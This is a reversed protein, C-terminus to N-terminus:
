NSTFTVKVLYAHHFSKKSLSGFERRFQYRNSPVKESKNSLLIGTYIKDVRSSDPEEQEDIYDRSNNIIDSDNFTEDEILHTSGTRQSYAISRANDLSQEYCIFM